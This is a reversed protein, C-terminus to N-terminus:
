LSLIDEVFQTYNKTANYKKSWTEYAAQKKLNVQEPSLNHFNRIATNIEDLSPTSNLLQGNENTVIESTGGVNTAIAPVGYSYAEMISVPIGETTSLNIFLDVRQNQYFQHVEDNRIFGIPKFNVELRKAMEVLKHTSSGMDLDYGIHYWKYKIDKLLALSNIILEIRKIPIILSCSLLTLEKNIISVDTSPLQNKVGLRSIVLNDYIGYRSSYYNWGTRSIFYIRDLYVPLINRFPM